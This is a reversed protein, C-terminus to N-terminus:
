AAGRLIKVAYRVADRESLVTPAVVAHELLTLARRARALQAGAPDDAHLRHLPELRPRAGM